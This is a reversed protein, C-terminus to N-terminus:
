AAEPDPVRFAGFVVAEEEERRKDRENFVDAFSPAEPATCPEGPGTGCKECGSLASPRTERAPTAPVPPTQPPDNPFARRYAALAENANYEADCSSGKRTLEIRYADCWLATEIPDHTM